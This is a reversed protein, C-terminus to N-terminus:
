KKEVWPIIIVAAASKLEYVHISICKLLLLQRWKGSAILYTFFLYLSKFHSINQM